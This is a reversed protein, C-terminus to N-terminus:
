KSDSHRIEMIGSCHSFQQYTLVFEDSLKESIESFVFYYEDNDWKNGCSAKCDDLDNRTRFSVDGIIIVGDENLSNLLSRIFTIKNEDTLHHLAYTSVIFDFTVNNLVTPLGKSFDYQMLNAKPMKEQAISLMEESFDIGTINNGQEYLKYALTGTGIGIDLVNSPCNNMITAYIVNMLKKYGAFPYVDDSDSINVSKDYDGSWLNFGKSDLM